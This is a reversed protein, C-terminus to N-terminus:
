RSTTTTTPNCVRAVLNKLANRPDTDEIADEISGSPDVRNGGLGSCWGPAAGAEATWGLVTVLFLTPWALKM